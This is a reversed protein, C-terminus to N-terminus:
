AAEYRSWTELGGDRRILMVQYADRENEPGMGPSGWPMGPVALGVAEPREELLRRIDAAPVHGEIVYGDILGTHCSVAAQPVGLDIKRRVLPANAVEEVTVVFGEERMITVWAGCCGCSPDKLVHLAAAPAGMARVAPLAAAAAAAARLLARRSIRPPRREPSSRGPAPLRPAPLRPASLDPASM